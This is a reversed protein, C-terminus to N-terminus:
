HAPPVELLDPVVVLTEVLTGIAANVQQRAQLSVQSQPVWAGNVQTALLARQLATLESNATAVVGPDRQNILSAEEDLVVRDVQTDAYTMAFAAGAGQDDILTLHDRIADEIIEHV